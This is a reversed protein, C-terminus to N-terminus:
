SESKLYFIKHHFNSWIQLCPGSEFRHVRLQLGSRLREAVAGCIQNNTNLPYPSGLDISYNGQVRM